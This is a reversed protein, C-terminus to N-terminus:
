EYKSPCTPMIQGATLVGNAYVGEILVKTGQKFSDPVIGHYVVPVTAQEDKIVFSLQRAEPSWQVSGELVIGGVRVKAQTSHSGPKLLESVTLYYAMTDRAGTYILYGVVGMVVLTIVILKFRQKKRDPAQTVIMAYTLPGQEEARSLLTNGENM